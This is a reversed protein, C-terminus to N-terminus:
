PADVCSRFIRTLHAAIIPASYFTVAHARATSRECFRTTKMTEMAQALAACDDPAVLLGTAPTIISQPGGCRTAIVPLGSSLAEILVVGFTEVRSPLVFTHSKWLEERVQARSKAGLFDVNSEIGLEGRLALLADRLPGAGVIRLEVADDGRFKQAWARLLVDLGKVETLKAVCLFIQPHAPPEELPLHFYDTHVVNPVIEIARHPCYPKMSEALADSVSIIAAANQLTEKIFPAAFAPVKRTPFLSSHETVVYPISHRAGIKRAAYGAWLCNHAHIVDPKGREFIYKEILKETFKTWIQAGRASQALPNWGHQRLTELGNEDHWLTQFYNQRLTRPGLSQLRRGEFYAVSVRAGSKQLASAQEQFFSGLVPREPDCYFSPLVLVHLPKSETPSFAAANEM